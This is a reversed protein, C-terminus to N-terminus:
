VSDIKWTCVKIFWSRERERERELIRGLLTTDSFSMLSHLINGMMNDHLSTSAFFSLSCMMWTGCLIVHGTRQERDQSIQTPPTPPQASTQTYDPVSTLPSKQNSISAYPVIFICEKVSYQNRPLCIRASIYGSAAAISPKSYEFSMVFYTRPLRDVFTAWFLQHPLGNLSKM